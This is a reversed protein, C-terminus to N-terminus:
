ILLDSGFLLISLACLTKDWHAKRNLREIAIKNPNRNKYIITITILTIYKSNFLM